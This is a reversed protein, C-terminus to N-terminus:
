YISGSFCINQYCLFFRCPLNFKISASRIVAEYFFLSHPINILSEIYCACDKGLNSLTTRTKGQTRQSGQVSQATMPNVFFVFACVFFVLAATKLPRGQICGQLRPFSNRGRRSKLYSKVLDEM